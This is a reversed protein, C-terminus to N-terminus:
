DDESFLKDFCYECFGTIKLEKLGLDSYIHGYAEASTDPAYYAEQQCGICHKGLYEKDPNTGPHTRENEVNESDETM